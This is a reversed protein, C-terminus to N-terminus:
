MVHTYIFVWLVITSIMSVASLTFAAVAFDRGKQSMGTSARIASWMKKRQDYHKRRSEHMRIRGDKIILNMLNYIQFQSFSMFTVLLKKLFDM